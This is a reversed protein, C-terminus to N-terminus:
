ETSWDQSIFTPEGDWQQFSLYILGEPGAAAGHWQGKGITRLQAELLGRKPSAVGNQDRLSPFVGNLLLDASACRLHRHPETGAGPMAAILEVQWCSERFLISELICGRFTMIQDYVPRLHLRDNRLM